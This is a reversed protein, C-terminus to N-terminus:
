LAVLVQPAGDSGVGRGHLAPTSGWSDVVRDDLLADGVHRWVHVFAFRGVGIPARELALGDLEGAGSVPVILEDVVLRRASVAGLGFITLGTALAGLAFKHM